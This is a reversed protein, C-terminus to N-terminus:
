AALVVQFLFVENGRIPGHPSESVCTNIKEGQAHSIGSHPFGVSQLDRPKGCGLDEVSEPLM